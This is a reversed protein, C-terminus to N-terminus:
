VPQCQECRVVSGNMSEGAQSFTARYAVGNLPETIIVVHGISALEQKGQRVVSSLLYMQGEQYPANM